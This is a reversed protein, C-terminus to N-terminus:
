INKGHRFPRSTNYEHKLRVAEGLDIGRRGCYHFIRILVDALEASEGTLSPVHDDMQPVCEPPRGVHERSCMSCVWIYGDTLDLGRYTTIKSPCHPCAEVGNKRLFELCESLESHMLAIMEASHRTVERPTMQSEDENWGKKTAWENIVECLSNLAGSQGTSILSFEAVKDLYRKTNLHGRQQATKM